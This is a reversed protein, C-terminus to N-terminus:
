VENKLECSFKYLANFKKFKEILHGDGSPEFHKEFEIM